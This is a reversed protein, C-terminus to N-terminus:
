AIYCFGTGIFQLNATTKIRVCNGRKAMLVWGLEFSWVTRVFQQCILERNELEGYYM